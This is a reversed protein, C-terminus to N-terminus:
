RAFSPAFFRGRPPTSASGSSALTTPKLAPKVMLPAKIREISPPAAPKTVAGPFLRNFREIDVTKQDGGTWGSLVWGQSEPSRQMDLVRKQTTRKHKFGKTFPKVVWAGHAKRALKM